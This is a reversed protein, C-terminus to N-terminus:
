KAEPKLKVFDAPDLGMARLTAEWAYDPVRGGYIDSILQSIAGGQALTLQGRQISELVGNRRIDENLQDQQLKEGALGSRKREALELTAQSEGALNSRKREGFEDRQLGESSLNSRRQETLQERRLALDNLFKKEESTLERIQMQDRLTREKQSEAATFQQQQGQMRERSGVEAYGLRLQELQAESSAQDRAQQLDMDQGRLAAEQQLQKARVEIDAFGQQLQGRQYESSAQDRAAQLDITRGQIAAEQQLQTARISIDAQAQRAQANTQFQALDQQGSMEALSSMTSLYLQRDRAEAEAQQKLLDAEFTGLARAQQGALDGYRGGGITSASLGRSALEDELKSREAGYTASLEDAKARRLAAYSQGQIASPGQAMTGLQQALQERLALAQQSGGYQQLSGLREQLASLDPMQYQGTPATYLSGVTPATYDMSPMTYQRTPPTYFSRPVPSSSGQGQAGSATQGLDIGSYGGGIGGVAGSTGGTGGTGGTNSASFNSAAFGAGGPDALRELNRLMKLQELERPTAEANPSGQPRIGLRELETNIDFQGELDVGAIADWRKTFPNFQFKTQDRYRGEEDAKRREEPTLAAYAQERRRAEENSARDTIAQAAQRAPERDYVERGGYPQQGIAVMEDYTRRRLKPGGESAPVFVMNDPIAGKSPDSTAALQSRNAPDNMWEIQERQGSMDLGSITLPPLGTGSSSAAATPAVAQPALSSASAPPEAATQATPALSSQLQGLMPPMAAANFEPSVAPAGSPAPRAVGQKQLDAFTNTPPPAAATKATTSGPAFGKTPDDDDAGGMPANGFLDKKPSPLSGFATNFTAM